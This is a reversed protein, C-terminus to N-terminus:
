TMNQIYQSKPEYGSNYSYYAGRQGNYEPHGKDLDAGMRQQVWGSDTSKIILYPSGTFVGLGWGRKLTPDRSKTM